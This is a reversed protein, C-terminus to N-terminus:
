YGCLKGPGECPIGDGDGDMKTDACNRLFWKAEECSTMQSCHKRGDCRYPTNFSSVAKNNPQLKNEQKPTFKAATFQYIQYGMLGVIVLGLVGSILSGLSSTHNSRRKITKNRSANSTQYPPRQYIPRDIYRIQKAAPQGKANTAIDFSVKEGQSPRPQKQKFDSIHCFIKQNSNDIQIFGYGKDDHWQTIKGKM